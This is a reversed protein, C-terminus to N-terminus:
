RYNLSKANWRTYAFHDESVLSHQYEITSINFNNAARLLPSINEGYYCYFLIHKFENKKLFDVYSLYDIQHEIITKSISQYTDPLASGLRSTLFSEIRKIQKQFDFHNNYQDVVRNQYIIRGIATVPNNVTNIVKYDIKEKDFYTLFPYTFQNILTGDIFKTTTNRGSTFVAVKFAERKDFKRRMRAILRSKISYRKLVIRLSKPNALVPHSDITMLQHLKFAVHIKIVPWWNVDWLLFNDNEFQSSFEDLINLYENRSKFM